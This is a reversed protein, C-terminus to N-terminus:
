AKLLRLLVRRQPGANLTVRVADPITESLRTALELGGFGAVLILVHKKVAPVSGWGSPGRTVAALDADGPECRVSLREALMGREVQDVRATM